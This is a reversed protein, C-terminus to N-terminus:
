EVEGAAALLRRLAEARTREADSLGRRRELLGLAGLAEEAHPGLGALHGALDADRGSGARLPLGELAEKLAGGPEWEDEHRNQM